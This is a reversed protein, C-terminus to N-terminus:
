HPLLIGSTHVGTATCMINMHTTSEGIAIVLGAQNMSTNIAEQVTKM